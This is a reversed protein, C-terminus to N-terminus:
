PNKPRGACVSALPIVHQDTLSRWARVGLAAATADLGQLRWLFAGDTERAFRSAHHFLLETLDRFQHAQRQTGDGMMTPPGMVLETLQRDYTYNTASLQVVSAVKVSSVVFPNTFTQRWRPADSASVGISAYSGYGRTSAAWWDQVSSIPENAFVAVGASWPGRIPLGATAQYFAGSWGKEHVPLETRTADIWGLGGYVMASAGPLAQLADGKVVWVMGTLDDLDYTAEVGLNASPSQFFGGAISAGAGRTLILHEHQPVLWGDTLAQVPELADCVDMKVADLQKVDDCITGTLSDSPPALKECQEKGYAVFEEALRKYVVDLQAYKQRREAVVASARGDVSYARLADAGPEYKGPNTPPIYTAFNAVGLVARDTSVTATFERGTKCQADPYALVVNFGKELRQVQNPEVPAWPNTRFFQVCRAPADTELKFTGADGPNYVNVSSIQEHDGREGSVRLMPLTLLTTAATQPISSVMTGGGERENDLDNSESFLGLIRGSSTITASGVYTCGEPAGSEGTKQFSRHQNMVVGRISRPGVRETIAPISRPCARDGTATNPEFSITIDRPVDGDNYLAFYGKMGGEVRKSPPPPNNVQLLPFIQRESLEEEPVLPVAYLQATTTRETQHTVAVAAIPVDSTVEATGDFDTTHAADGFVSAHPALEITKAVTIAGGRDRVRLVVTARTPTPNMIAIRPRYQGQYGATYGPFLVRKSARVSGRYVDGGSPAGGARAHELSVVAEFACHSRVVASGNFGAPLPVRAGSGGTLDGPSVTDVLAGARDILEVVPADHCSTTDANALLLSSSAVDSDNTALLPLFAIAPRTAELSAAGLKERGKSKEGLAGGSSPDDSPQSACAPVGAGVLALLAVFRVGPRAKLNRSLQTAKIPEKM